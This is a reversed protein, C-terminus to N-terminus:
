FQFTIKPFKWCDPIHNLTFFCPNKLQNSTCVHHKKSQSRSPPFRVSLPESNFTQVDNIQIFISKKTCKSQWSDAVHILSFIEDISDDKAFPFKRISVKTPSLDYNSFKKKFKRIIPNMISSDSINNKSEFRKGTIDPKRNTSQHLFM